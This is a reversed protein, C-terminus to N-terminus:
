FNLMGSAASGAGASLSNVAGIGSRLRNAMKQQQKRRRRFGFTGGRMRESPSGLKYETQQGARAQNEMQTRQGQEFEALRAAYQEKELRAREEYDARIDALAGDYDFAPTTDPLQTETTDLDVPEVVSEAPPAFKGKGKAEKFARIEATTKGEFRGSRKTGKKSGDGGGKKSSSGGGKKSNTTGTKFKGVVGRRIKRARNGEKKRAM